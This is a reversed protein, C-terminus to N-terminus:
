EETEAVNLHAGGDKLLDINEKLGLKEALFLPTNQAKNREHVSAGMLLLNKAIQANPGTAALHLATNGAYDRANLLSYPDGDLVSMASKLDGRAIAHGLATFATQHTSIAAEESYPHSFQPPAQETLEGRISIAMQMAIVKPSLRPKALLYSLRTLAAETTLEHGFVVGANGLITVPAYIPSINGTYCQSVNVIIIDRKVASRIVEILRGDEGQPANRVGFTELILGRLDRIQLVSEVM